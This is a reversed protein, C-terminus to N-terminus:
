LRGCLLYNDVVRSNPFHPSIVSKWLSFRPVNQLMFWRKRWISHCLISHSNMFCGYKYLPYVVNLIVMGGLTTVTSMIVREIWNWFFFVIEMEFESFPDELSFSKRIFYDRHWWEHEPCAGRLKRVGHYGEPWKGCWVEPFRVGWNDANCKWVTQTRKQIPRNV